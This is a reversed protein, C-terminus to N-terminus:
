SVHFDLGKLVKMAESAWSAGDSALEHIQYEKTKTDVCIISDNDIHLSVAYKHSFAQKMGSSRNKSLGNIIGDTRTGYLLFLLRIYEESYYKGTYVWVDFGAKRLEKILLAAHKRLTSRYIRSFPFCLNKEAPCRGGDTLLVEDLDFSVCMKKGSKDLQKLISEESTLNVIHVPVEELSLRRAAMWRHHGNLIMYGGTSVKQVELPDEMPEIGKKLAYVFSSVYRGVIEYNPGIEPMSFEDGPNPHLKEPDTKRVLLRELLSARVPRWLGEFNKIDDLVLRRYEDTNASMFYGRLNEIKDYGAQM